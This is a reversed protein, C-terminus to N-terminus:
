LVSHVKTNVIFSWKCLDQWTDTIAKHPFVRHQGRDRTIWAVIQATLAHRDRGQARSEERRNIGKLLPSGLSRPTHCLTIHSVPRRSMRSLTVQPQAPCICIDRSVDLQFIPSMCTIAVLILM